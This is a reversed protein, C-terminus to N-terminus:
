QSPSSSRAATVTPVCLHVGSATSPPPSPLRSFSTTLQAPPPAPVSRPRTQTSVLVPPRAQPQVSRETQNGPGGGGSAMQASPVTQSSCSTELRGAGVIACSSAVPGDIASVVAVGCSRKAQFAVAVLNSSISRVMESKVDYTEVLTLEHSSSTGVSSTQTRTVRISCSVLESCVSRSDSKECASVLEDTRRHGGM